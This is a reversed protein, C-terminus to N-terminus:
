PCNVVFKGLLGNVEDNPGATFFIEPLDGYFTHHITSLGWLGDINVDIGNCNKLRGLFKGTANFINIFGDGFNGVIISEEPLHLFDPASIIGWPSNLPGNSVLRKIFKGNPCFINIFGNGPGAQDDQNAPPLQLAYLVYLLGNASFINFPAFGAPLTPDVFPFVCSSISVLNFKNDFVDIKNNHFDAAYLYNGAIALGKYVVGDTSRDVVIITETLNLQPVFASITGNETATLLSAPARIGGNQVIFEINTNHILGTPAAPIVADIVTIVLPLITGNIDYTTIYGSGNDSVYVIEDVIVNGWANVLNPDAPLGTGLLNSVLNQVRVQINHKPKKHHEHCDCESIIEYKDEKKECLDFCKHSKHKRCPDLFEFTDSDEKECPDFYKCPKKEKKECPDHCACPNFIEYKEEVKCPNYNGCKSMKEECRNKFKKSENKSFFITETM